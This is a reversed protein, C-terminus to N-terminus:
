LSSDAQGSKQKPRCRTWLWLHLLPTFPALTLFPVINHLTMICHALPLREALAHAIQHHLGLLAWSILPQM